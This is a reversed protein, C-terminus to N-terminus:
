ARLSLGGFTMSNYSAGVNAQNGDTKAAMTM